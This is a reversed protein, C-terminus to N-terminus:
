FYTYFLVSVIATYLTYALFKVKISFGPSSNRALPDNPQLLTLNFRFQFDPLIFANRGSKVRTQPEVPQVSMHL